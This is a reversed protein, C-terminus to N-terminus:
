LCFCTRECLVVGKTWLNKRLKRPLPRKSRQLLGVTDCGKGGIEQPFSVFLGSKTFKRPSPTLCMFWLKWAKDLSKRAFKLANKRKGVLPYARKLLFFFSLNDGGLGPVIGGFHELKTNKEQGLWRCIALIELSAVTKAVFNCSSIVSRWRSEMIADNLQLIPMGLMRKWMSRNRPHVTAIAVAFRLYWKM